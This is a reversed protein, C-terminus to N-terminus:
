KEGASLLEEISRLVAEKPVGYTEEINQLQMDVLDAFGKIWYAAGPDSVRVASLFARRGGPQYYTKLQEIAHRVGAIQGPTPTEDM